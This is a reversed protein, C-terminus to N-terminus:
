LAVSYTVMAPEDHGAYHDHAVVDERVDSAEEEPARREDFERRLLGDLYEYECTSM